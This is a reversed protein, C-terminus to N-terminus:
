KVLLELVKPLISYMTVSTLIMAFIFALADEEYM